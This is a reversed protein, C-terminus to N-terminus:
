HALTICTILRPSLRSLAGKAAQITAGTTLVDDVLIIHAQQVQRAVRLNNSCTFADTLNQLRQSRNLSTQPVVHKSKHLIDNRMQIHPYKRISQVVVLEVQNYGRKRYRKTSLPIPVIFAPETFSSLHKELVISLLKIARPHAHFKCLHIAAKVPPSQYPLLTHVNKQCAPTYHMTFQTDNCLSLCHEDTSKPFLIDVIRSFTSM